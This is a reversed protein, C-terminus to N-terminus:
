ADAMTIQTQSAFEAKVLENPSSWGRVPISKAKAFGRSGFVVTCTEVTCFM